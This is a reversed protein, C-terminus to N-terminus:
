SFLELSWAGLELSCLLELSWAGLELCAGFDLLWVGFFWVPRGPTQHKTKRMILNPFEGSQRPVRSTPCNRSDDHAQLQLKSREGEGRGEGGPSPSVNARPKINCRLQTPTHELVFSLSAPVVDAVDSNELATRTSEREELSLTPTLPFLIVATEAAGAKSGAGSSRGLPWPKSANMM